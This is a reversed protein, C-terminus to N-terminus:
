SRGDIESKVFSLNIMKNTECQCNIIEEPCTTKNEIPVQKGREMQHGVGREM